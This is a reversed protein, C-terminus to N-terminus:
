GAKYQGDPTKLLRGEAVLDDLVAQCTVPRLGFLRAAQALHLKLGPMERYTGVILSVLRTRSPEAGPTGRVRRRRDPAGVAFPTKDLRQTM